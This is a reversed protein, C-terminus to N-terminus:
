AAQESTDMEPSSFAVVEIRGYFVMRQIYGPSDNKLKHQYYFIEPNDGIRIEDQLFRVVLAAAEAVVRNHRESENSGVSIASPFVIDIDYPWHQRFHYYYIGRSIRDFEQTIREFDIDYLSTRVGRYLVPKLNHFIGRNSPRRNMSRRLKTAWQGLGASNVEFNSVLVYLLYEDDGSKQLNHEACSAVKILNRRYNAGSPIDKSEPFICRPPVHELSIAEKSCMYCEAM